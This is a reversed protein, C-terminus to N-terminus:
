KLGQAVLFTDYSMSFMAARQRRVALVLASIEQSEASGLRAHNISELLQAAEELKGVAADYACVQDNRLPAKM